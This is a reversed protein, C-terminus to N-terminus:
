ARTVIVSVPRVMDSALNFIKVTVIEDAMAKFNITLKDGQEPKIVNKNTFAIEAGLKFSTM